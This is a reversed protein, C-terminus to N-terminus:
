GIVDLPAEDTIRSTDNFLSASLRALPSGAVITGVRPSQVAQSFHAALEAFDITNVIGDSNFDGQSFDSSTSGFHSALVNFDLANVVLDRNADGSLFSFSFVIDSTPHNGAIDSIANASITALYTGDPLAGENYIWRASNTAPNIQVQLDSSPVLANGASLNKLTLDGPDISATVDSTFISQVNQQPAAYDFTASEMAPAATAIQISGAVSRSSAGNITTAIVRVSHTGDALASSTIQYIGGDSATTVGVLNGDVLLSVTSSPTAYGIFTPTNDATIDDHNSAGTDSAAILDPQSPAAPIPPASLLGYAVIRGLGVATSASNSGTGVYVMGNAVVPVSFKVGTAGSVAGTLSDRASNTNSDYIPSTFSNANWALLNDTSAPGINTGWIIGNSTGNASATFTPGRAGATFSGSTTQTPSPTTTKGPPITGSAFDAVSFRRGPDGSTAFYFSGNFYAPSSYMKHTQSNTANTQFEGLVRDYLLPDPYPSTTANKPYTLNFKGMNDRDILYVRGEKGGALLLHPHGPIGASDPLLVVGGSGMDADIQNLKLQNSPTFYDYVKLGWGNGNQNNFTSNPDVGLKIVCDGYNHDIPFGNADFNSNAEDFGGNGTTMYLYTGDSALSSGSMWVGAEATYDAPSGIIGKFTPATVFAGALQLDSARYALIWGYYPGRDGHSAYALYITGNVLTTAPRNMQILANFAIQGSADPDYGPHNPDSSPIWGDTRANGNVTGNNGTGNVIPGAYYQYDNYDTPVTGGITTNKVTDGILTVGAVSGDAIRIAWLRQVFHRSSGVTGAAVATTGNRYEKTMATLYIIGSSDDIVPTSIIGVEPRVDATNVVDNSGNIGSNAITTNAGITSVGLTPTLSTPDAVNLFSDQWFISGNNADIAYLSDHQTAAYLVNHVGQNTGRTISVFTKVLPQAYVQGDLTTTFKKGFTTPNVNAPTLSTEDASLGINSLDYRYGLVDVALLTRSELAELRARRSRLVRTLHILV